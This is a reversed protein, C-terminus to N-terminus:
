LYKLSKKMVDKQYNLITYESYMRENEIYKIFQNLGEKMNVSM